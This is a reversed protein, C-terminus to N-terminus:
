DTIDPFNLKIRVACQILDQAPQQTNHTPYVVLQQLDYICLRGHKLSLGYSTLSASYRLRSWAELVFTALPSRKEFSIRGFFLSWVSATCESRQFGSPFIKGDNQFTMSNRAQSDIGSMGWHSMLSCRARMPVNQSITGCHSATHHSFWARMLSSNNGDIRTDAYECSAEVWPAVGRFRTGFVNGAEM